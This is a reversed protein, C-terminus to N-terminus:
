DKKLNKYNELEEATMHDELVGFIIKRDRANARGFASLM